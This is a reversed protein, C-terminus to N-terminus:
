EFFKQKMMKIHCVIMPTSSLKKAEEKDSHYIMEQKKLDKDVKVREQYQHSGPAILRKPKDVFNDIGAVMSSVMSSSQASSSHLLSDNGDDDESALSLTKLIQPTYNWEIDDKPSYMVCPTGDNRPFNRYVVMEESQGKEDKDDQLSL